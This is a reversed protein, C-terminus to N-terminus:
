LSSPPCVKCGYKKGIMDNHRFSGNQNSFVEGRKVQLSRISGYSEYAVVWDGDEIFEKRRLM